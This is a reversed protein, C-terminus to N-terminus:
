LCSKHFYYVYNLLEDFYLYFLRIFLFVQIVFYITIKIDCNKCLSQRKVTSETIKDSNEHKLFTFIHLEFGLRTLYSGHIM